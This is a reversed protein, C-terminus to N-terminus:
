ASKTEESEDAAEEGTVNQDLFRDLRDMIRYGFVDMLLFVVVWFVATM